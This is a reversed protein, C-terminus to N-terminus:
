RCGLCIRERVVELLRSIRKCMLLGIHSKGGKEYSERSGRGNGSGSDVDLRAVEDVVVSRVLVIRVEDAGHHAGVPVPTPKMASLVEDPVRLEGLLSTGVDRLARVLGSM